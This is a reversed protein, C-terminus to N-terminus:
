GDTAFLYAGGVLVVAGVQLALRRYAIAGAGGIFGYQVSESVVQGEEFFATSAQPPFLVMAGIVVLCVAVVRKRRTSV